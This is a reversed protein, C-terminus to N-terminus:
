RAARDQPACLRALAERDVKGSASMPLAEVFLFRAPVMYPALLERCHRRLAATDAGGPGDAVIVAAIVHSAADRVDVVGATHVGDAAALVREVEELEVRNGHIQVQHDSRGAFRLGGPGLVALDGTRLLPEPSEPREPDRVLARATAEPDQWYGSFMSAARLHIEGRAGPATVREGDPGLLLMEAGPYATGLPIARWDAPIPDPVPFFACCISETQGYLNLVELGPLESRVANVLAVTLEEGGVVIRRLLRLEGLRGSCHRLLMSWLTPVSHLQDVRQEVLEDLLRRPHLAVQRPIFVVTGGAGLAAATDLLSLDFGLPAVSGVRGRGDCADTIGRFATVAARHSMTVGKPTGTSGSTFIIYATDSEIVRRDPRGGPLPAGHVTLGDGDVHIRREAIRAADQEPLKCGPGTVLVRADVRRHIEAVRAAPLDANFPAFVYGAEGCAILLSVSEFGPDMSAAVADGHRLGLGALRAGYDRSAQALQGYTHDVGRSVIAVRDRHTDAHRLLFRGVLVPEWGAPYGEPRAASSAAPADSAVPVAPADSAVPVAPADSAADFAAPTGSGATGATGATAGARPRPPAQPSM